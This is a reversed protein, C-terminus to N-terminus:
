MKVAIYGQPLKLTHTEKDWYFSIGLDPQYWTNEQHYDSCTRPLGKSDRDPNNKILEYPINNSRVCANWLANRSVPGTDDIPFAILASDSKQVHISPTPADCVHPDRLARAILEVDVGTADAIQQAAWSWMATDSEAPMGRKVSCLLSLTHADFPADNTGGFAATAITTNLNEVHALFHVIGDIVNTQHGRRSADHNDADSSVSHHPTVASQPDIEPGFLWFLLEQVQPCLGQGIPCIGMAVTQVGVRTLGDDLAHTDLNGNYAGSETTTGDTFIFMPQNDNQRQICLGQHVDCVQQVSVGTIQQIIQSTNVVTAASGSIAANQVSGGSQDVIINNAAQANVVQQALTQLLPYLDQLCLGTSVSCTQVISLVATPTVVQAADVQTQASIDVNAQQMAGSGSQQLVGVDNESATNIIQQALTTVVPLASQVCAGVGASCNQAIALAITPAVVQAATVTTGASGTLTATQSGSSSLQAIGLVNASSATIAQMAVVSVDPSGQQVCVQGTGALCNQNVAASVDPAYLQGSSVTTHSDGNVDANQTAGSGSIQIVTSTNGSSADIITTSSNLISGSMTEGSAALTTSLPLLALCAATVSACVRCLSNATM